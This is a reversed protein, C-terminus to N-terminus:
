NEPLRDAKRITSSFGHHALQGKIDGFFRIGKVVGSIPVLEKNFWIEVESKKRGWMERDLVIRVLLDKGEKQSEAGRQSETEEKSAVKMQIIEHGKRPLTPMIFEKGPEVKGYVGFRFNYFATVPDDYLTGFPIEMEERSAKGDKEVEILVKRAAYDYVTTKKRFWEGVISYEEFRLPILRRGNNSTGMTSRYVERRHRTIWGVLGQAKGEHFVMYRGDGLSRFDAEGSGVPFFVWFGVEYKIVERTFRKAIADDQIEGAAKELALLSLVVFLFLM